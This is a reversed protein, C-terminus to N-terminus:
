RKMLMEDLNLIVSAVVTMAAASESQMGEPLAGLPMTALQMAAEPSDAFEQLSDQYLQQLQQLEDAAADRCLATRIAFQFQEAPADASQLIRRAFAQAAEVYVEDNM